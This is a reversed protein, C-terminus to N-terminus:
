LQRRVGAEREVASVQAEIGSSLGPGGSRRGTPLVTRARGDELSMALAAYIAIGCLGLGIIGAVHEWASSGTLEFIGTVAFRLATTGLVATAILKTAAATSAPILMAVGALLLLLGLASSTSGPPSTLMVLAVSLWTGALIGMGTGAVVDRAMFGLISVAIQAPAVFALLILAVSTGDSAKLWGLQLGAVLLTAGSLALFGLPLPNALPRLVVRVPSVETGQRQAGNM